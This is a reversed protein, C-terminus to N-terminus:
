NVRIGYALYGGRHDNDKKFDDNSTDIEKNNISILKIHNPILEILYFPILYIDNDEDYSFPTDWLKHLGEFQHLIINSLKSTKKHSSSFSVCWM